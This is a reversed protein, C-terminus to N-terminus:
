HNNTSLNRSNTQHSSLHTNGSKELFRHLYWTLLTLSDFIEEEKFVADIVSSIYIKFFQTFGEIEQRAFKHVSKKRSHSANTSLAPALRKFFEFSSKRFIGEKHSTQIESWLGILFEFLTDSLPHFLTDDILM